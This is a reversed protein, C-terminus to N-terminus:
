CTPRGGPGTFSKVFAGDLYADARVEVPRCARTIPVSGSREGNGGVTLFLALERPQVWGSDPTPREFGILTLATGEPLDKWTTRLRIKGDSYGLDEVRVSGRSPAEGSVRRGLNFQTENGIIRQEIRSVVEQQGPVRYAVQELYTLYSAVLGRTRESPDSGSILRRAADLSSIAADDRLAGVEAASKVLRIDPVDRNISIAEDAARISQEYEGAYLAALSLFAYTLFDRGQDLDLSRRADDVAERFAEDEGVFAGTRTFDPNAALARARARGAYPVAYDPDAEIAQDFLAIAKEQEREDSAVNGRATAVIASEATEPIPLLKVYVTAAVTLLAVFIGLGYFVVRRQGRLALSFGVLFLAFALVAIATTYQTARDNWTVRTEALAAQKLSLRESDIAIRRLGARTRAGQLATGDPFMRRLAEPSLPAAAEGSQAALFDQARTLAKAEADIDQELLVGTEDVVGGRLAAVATRTTERATNSENVSADTQLIGISAGIVAITALSIAIWRGLVTTGEEEAGKEPREQEPSEVSESM